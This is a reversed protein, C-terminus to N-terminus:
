IRESVRGCEFELTLVRRLVKFEHHVNHLEGINNVSEECRGFHPTEVSGCQFPTFLVDNSFLLRLAEVNLFGLLELPLHVLFINRYVVKYSVEDNVHQRDNREDDAADRAQDQSQPEESKESDLSNQLPKVLERLTELVM